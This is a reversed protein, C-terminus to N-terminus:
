SLALLAQRVFGKIGSSLWQFIGPKSSSPSNQNDTKGQEGTKPPLLKPFDQHLSFLLGYRAGDEGTDCAVVLETLQALKLSGPDDVGVYSLAEWLKDKFGRNHLLAHTLSNTDNGLLLMAEQWCQYFNQYNNLPQERIIRDPVGLAESGPIKLYGRYVQIRNPTTFKPQM